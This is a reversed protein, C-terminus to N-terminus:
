TNMIHGPTLGKPLTVPLAHARRRRDLLLPVRGDLFGGVCKGGMSYTRGM